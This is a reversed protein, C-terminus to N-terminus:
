WDEKVATDLATAVAAVEAATLGPFMPLSIETESWRRAVELCEGKRCSALPPQLHLAPWYHIGVQVGQQRLRRSVEDREDVRVAM